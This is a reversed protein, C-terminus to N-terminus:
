PVLAEAMYVGPTKSMGMLEGGTYRSEGLRARKIVTWDTDFGFKVLSCTTDIRRTTSRLTVLTNGNIKSENDLIRRGITRSDFAKTAKVALSTITKKDIV